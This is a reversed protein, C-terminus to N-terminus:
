IAGGEHQRDLWEEFYDDFEDMWYQHDYRMEETNSALSFPDFECMLDGKIGINLLSQNEPDEGYNDRENEFYQQADEDNDLYEFVKSKFLDCSDIEQKMKNSSM